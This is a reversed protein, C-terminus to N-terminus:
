RPPPLDQLIAGTMLDVRVEYPEPLGIQREVSIVAREGEFRAGVVSEWRLKHGGAFVYIWAHRTRGADTLVVGHKTGLLVEEGRVALERPYSRPESGGIGAHPTSHNHGKYTIWLGREAQRLTYINPLVLPGDIWRRRKPSDLLWALSPDPEGAIPHRFVVAEAAAMACEGAELLAPPIETTDVFGTFSYEYDVTVPESRSSLALELSTLGMSSGSSNEARLHDPAGDGDVDAELRLERIGMPEGEFLQPEWSTADPVELVPCKKDAASADAVALASCLLISIGSTLRRVARTKM